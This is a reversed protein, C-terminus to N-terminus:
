GNVFGVGYLNYDLNGKAYASEVEYRAKDLYLDAGVAWGRSGNDTIIGGAGIVSPAILKDKAPIPTLYGIVPNLGAGLAPSVIPLPAVVISGNPDGLDWKHKKEENKDSTDAPPKDASPNSSTTQAADQKEQEGTAPVQNTAQARCLSGAAILSSLLFIRAWDKRKVASVLAKAATM